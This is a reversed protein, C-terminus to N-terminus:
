DESRYRSTKVPVVTVSLKPWRASCKSCVEREIFAQVRYNKGASRGASSRQGAGSAPLGRLERHTRTWLPDPRRLHRRTSPVVPARRFPLVARHAEILYSALKGAGMMLLTGSDERSLLQSAFASNCATKIFTEATAGICALPEGTNGDLLVYFGMVSLKNHREPNKPFVNAVKVGLACGRMWAPEILCHAVEGHSTPQSMDLREIVDCGTRYMTALADIVAAYDGFRHVDDWSIIRM